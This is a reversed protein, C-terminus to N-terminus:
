AFLPSRFLVPVTGIYTTYQDDAPARISYTESALISFDGSHLPRKPPKVEFMCTISGSCSILVDLLVIMCSIGLM